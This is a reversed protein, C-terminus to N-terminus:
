DRSQLKLCLCALISAIVQCIMHILSDLSKTHSAMMSILTALPNLHASSVPYVIFIMIGLYFGEAVSGSVIDVM